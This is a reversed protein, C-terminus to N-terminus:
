CWVVPQNRKLAEAAINGLRDFYSQAQDPSIGYYELGDQECVYTSVMDWASTNSIKNLVTLADVSGSYDWTLGLVEWLRTFNGNAANMEFPLDEFSVKGSGGCERCTPKVGDWFCTQCTYERKVVLNNAQCFERNNVITITVSM